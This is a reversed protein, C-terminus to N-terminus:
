GNVEVSCLSSVDHGGVGGLVSAAMDPVGSLRATAKVIVTSVLSQLM